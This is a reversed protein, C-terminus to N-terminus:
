LSLEQDSFPTAKNVFGELSYGGHIGHTLAPPGTAEFPVMPPLNLFLQEPIEVRPQYADLPHVLQSPQQNMVVHPPAAATPYCFLTQNVPDIFQYAATPDVVVSSFYTNDGPQQGLSTAPQNQHTAPATHSAYGAGGSSSSQGGPVNQM